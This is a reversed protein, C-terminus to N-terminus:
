KSLSYFGVLGSCRWTFKIAVQQTRGSNLWLWIISHLANRRLAKSANSTWALSLNKPHTKRLSFCSYTLYEYNYFLYFFFSGSFRCRIYLFKNKLFIRMVLIMKLQIKWNWKSIQSIEFIDLVESVNTWIRICCKM